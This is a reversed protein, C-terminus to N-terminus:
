KQPQFQKKNTFQEAKQFQAPMQFPEPKQFQEKQKTIQEMEKGAIQCWGGMAQRESQIIPPLMTQSDWTSPKPQASMKSRERDRRVTIREPRCALLSYTNSGRDAPLGRKGTWM